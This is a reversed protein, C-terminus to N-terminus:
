LFLIIHRHMRTKSPNHHKASFLAMVALQLLGLYSRLKWKAGGTEKRTQNTRVGM